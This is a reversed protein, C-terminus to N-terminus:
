ANSSGAANLGDGDAATGSEIQYFAYFDDTFDYGGRIGIRSTNNKFETRKVATAGGAQLSEVSVHVRGYLILPVQQAACDAATFGALAGLVLTALRLRRTESQLKRTM